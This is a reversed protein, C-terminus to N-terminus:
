EQEDYHGKYSLKPIDPFPEESSETIRAKDRDILKWSKNVPHQIQVFRHDPHEPTVDEFLCDLTSSKGIAKRACIPDIMELIVQDTFLDGANFYHNVMEKAPMKELEDRTIYSIKPRIPKIKSVGTIKEIRSIRRTQM